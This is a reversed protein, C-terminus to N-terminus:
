KLSDPLYFEFETYDDLVSDVRINGGHLMVITKVIYLGLGVGSKDQSRSKDTKYFREFIHILEEKAIGHGSNKIKVYEKNDERRISIEIYGDENTFKVANELINYVVQHILDPDGNVYVTEMNETGLISIRKKEIQQEFVLLCNVITNTLEFRVPHLPIEGGDIKSLVLMSHIIRSLRRTEESVIKLYKNHMEPPITGDLIGDVFGSISTMPTKLEHSVNAVFSRYMNESAAISTAMTNFSEALMGTEDDTTVPVRISFDGEGFAKAATTIQSLPHIMRYTLYYVLIFDIIFAIIITIVLVKIIDNIFESVVDASSVAFVVAVTVPKGPQEDVVVPVGVIYNKESYIGGLNGMTRYTGSESSIVQEIDSQPVTQMSHKCVTNNDPVESCIEMNGKLDVMFIDANISKANTYFYFPLTQNFTCLYEGSDYHTLIALNEAIKATNSANVALLSQKEEQWRDTVFTTIVTGLILFSIILLVATVTIYKILISRRIHQSFFDYSKKIRNFIKNQKM